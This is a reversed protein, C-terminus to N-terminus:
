HSLRTAAPMGLMEPGGASEFLKQAALMRARAEAEMQMFAAHGRVPDFIPNQAITLVPTYGHRVADASVEIGHEPDGVRIMMAGFLFLAEPDVHSSQAAAIARLAEAKPQQHSAMVADVTLQLAPPVSALDLTALARRATDAEGIAALVFRADSSSTKWLVRETEPTASSSMLAMTYEIGTSVNPDLRMAEDHAALSADFLGAYRCTHVLGAFLQPDHRNIAAHKM